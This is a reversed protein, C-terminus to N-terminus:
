AQAVPVVHVALREVGALVEREAALDRREHCVIKACGDRELLYKVIHALSARSETRPAAVVAIRIPILRLEPVHHPRLNGTVDRCTLWVIKGPEDRQQTTARLREALGNDM